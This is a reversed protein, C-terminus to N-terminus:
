TIRQISAAIEEPEFVRKWDDRMLVPKGFEIAKNCADSFVGKTEGFIVAGLVNMHGLLFDLAAQRDVGRAVVEDLAEKMVVLLSACVTESLGPELLAMHEVTVRHSRMVPAWIIQAIKEGKAYDEEPGQMLASVFHQKAKVGGFFDKKAAMDTEDNFIPPHCPHTVFYTLDPRDPLHGAFPAAADLVIVMTGSALKSEISAAVKGIHTDPVALIVVEAGELAEDVGVADIGLGTKLREKGAESIEVHRITYDSGRFNTSLRYGMKGGAGFLAITTM